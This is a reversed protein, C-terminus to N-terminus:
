NKMVMKGATRGDAFIFQIYCCGSGAGEELILRRNELIFKIDRGTIDTVKVSSIRLDEPMAIFFEGASPVPYVELSINNMEDIGEVVVEVSVDDVFYYAGFSGVNGVQTITTATDSNFNGITIYQEGGAATFFGSVQMWATTSGLLTGNQIQPIVPIHLSNTYPGPVSPSFYAGIENIAQIYGDNLSVYFEVKYKVGATLAQSFEGTAYERYETGYNYAIIGCYANGGHPTQQTPNIGPCNTHYYDTSAINPKTWNNIWTLGFQGFAPCSIYNEFGPNLALNQSFSLTSFSIIFVATLLHKKRM